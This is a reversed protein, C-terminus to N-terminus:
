IGQVYKYMCLAAAAAATATRHTAISSNNKSCCGNSNTMTHRITFVTAPESFRIGDITKKENEFVNKKKMYTGRPLTTANVAKIKGISYGRYNRAHVSGHRDDARRTSSGRTFRHISINAM